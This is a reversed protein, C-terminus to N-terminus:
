LLSERPCLLHLDIVDTLRLEKENWNMNITFCEMDFFNDAYVPMCREDGQNAFDDRSYLQITPQVFNFGSTGGSECGLSDTVLIFISGTRTEPKFRDKGGTRIVTMSDGTEDDFIHLNYGELPHLEPLGGTGWIENYRFELGGQPTSNAKFLFNVKNLAKFSVTAGLNFDLCQDESEFHGEFTTSRINHSIFPIIWVEFPRELGLSALQNEKITLNDAVGSGLTVIKGDKKHIPLNRLTSLDRIDMQPPEETLILYRIGAQTAPDPDCNIEYNQQHIITFDVTNGKSCFVVSRADRFIGKAPIATQDSVEIDGATPPDATYCRGCLPMMIFVWFINIYFLNFNMDLNEISHM